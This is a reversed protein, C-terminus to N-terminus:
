RKLAEITIIHALQQGLDAESPIVYLTNHHRDNIMDYNRLELVTGGNAQYMTFNVGNSNLESNGKIAIGRGRYPKNSPSPVCDSDAEVQNASEWAQKCKKNFWKDFWKM